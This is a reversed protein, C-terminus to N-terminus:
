MFGAQHIVVESKFHTVHMNSSFYHLLACKIYYKSILSKQMNEYRVIVYGPWPQSFYYKNLYNM